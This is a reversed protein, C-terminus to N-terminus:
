KGICFRGFIRELVDPEVTEGTIRGIAEIATRLPIAAIEWDHAAILAAAEPLAAAAIGLQEAHRSNVAIEPERWDAAAYVIQAFAAALEDLNEGTTAAIRVAPFPLHPLARGPALDRKNWVAIAKPPRVALLEAAEAALDEATSDLVWFVAEATRISQRSRGIGLQEIVDGGERLGATDILRVPIGALVAREELTDRTTGAIDTVIARDYGLLRNLLSSKGANPRGAIAVAVGDRLLKGASGTAALEALRAAPAALKAALGMDWDLEEDPFDLHSECEALVEALEDRLRKFEVSLAGALQREAVHLAMDSGAAILDGVAEAQVLDLKGNVFARFTFEGPAAMRCGAALAARLVAAAALAGGHTHLEVVDDGTYSRPGPMYVALAPDGAVHGLLMRRASTPGLAARGRWIQRGAALAGPGAIRIVAIAGGVATAPACITDITNM